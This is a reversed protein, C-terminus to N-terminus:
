PTRGLARPRQPAGRPGRDGDAPRARPHRPAAGLATADFVISAPVAVFGALGGDRHLGVTHYSRCLNTRGSPVDPMRRVSIGAGCVVRDGVAFGTVGDGVSEITGAFEHGLIM